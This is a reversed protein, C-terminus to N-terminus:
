FIITRNTAPVITGTGSGNQNIRRSVAAFVGTQRAGSLGSQVAALASVTVASVNIGQMPPAESRSRYSTSASAAAAVSNSGLFM